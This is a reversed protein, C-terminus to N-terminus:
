NVDPWKTFTWTWSNTYFVDNVIDYMGIVGDLKRYCPVFDRLQTAWEWIKVYYWKNRSINGSNNWNLMINTNWTYSSVITGTILNGSAWVNKVYNNWIEFEYLVNSSLTSGYTRRNALDFYIESQCNFLRYSTNDDWNYMWYIVYGTTTLNMFKIQSLTSDKPLVGTDIYPWSSDCSIWEVEKYASPLRGTYEGIYANKLPTETNSPYLYVGM